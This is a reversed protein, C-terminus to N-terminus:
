VVKGPRVLMKVQFTPSMHRDTFDLVGKQLTISDIVIEPRRDTEAPTETPSSPPVDTGGGLVRQLNTSRDPYIILRTQFDNLAVEHIHLSLPSLTAHIRDLQMSEWLVLDDGSVTETAYFDRVGLDGSIDGGLGSALEKLHFDIGADLDASVMEVHIGAPMYPNVGTLPIQRLRLKGSVDLPATQGSASLNLRGRKGYSASATFTKFAPGASYLGDVAFAINRFAFVPREPLSGDAFSVAIGTAATKTIQWEFPQESGTSSKRDDAVPHLLTLPSLAGTADRSFNLEGNEAEVTGVGARREGSDITVGGVAFRDLRLGDSGGFPLFLDQVTITGNKLRLTGEAAMEIEAGASLSGAISRTLVTALYPFYPELPVGTAEVNVTATLPQLAITGAITGKEGRESELSLNFPSSQDTGTDVHQLDISIEKLETTFGGAPQEDRFHLRGGRLRTNGIAIEPGNGAPKESEVAGINSETSAMLREFNWVGQRDRNITLELGYIIIENISIRGSLPEAGALTLKGLPLFCLSSGDSESIKLGTLIVDGTLAVHPAVDRTVRYGIELTTSLHGTDFRVPLDAPLYAAHEPLNFKELNIDVTAEVTDAFPKLKGDFTFPADNVTAHLLPTVYEDALYAVNGVFPIAIQLNRVRHQAAPMVVQDIFDLSGGNVTINNLSFNLTKQESTEAQPPGSSGLSLLDSFNYTNDAIRVLRLVPRELQLQKVIPGRELLSLASLKVYLRDFTIFPTPEAAESLVLGRLEISLAFPNINIEDIGLTRETHTAVWQIANIRIIGPLIFVIFALLLFIVTAAVIAVRKWRNM